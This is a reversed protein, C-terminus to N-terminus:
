FASVAVAPQITKVFASAWREPGTVAPLTGLITFTLPMRFHSVIELDVHRGSRSFTAAFSRNDFCM